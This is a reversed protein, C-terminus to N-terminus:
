DRNILTSLMFRVNEIPGILHLRVDNRVTKWIILDEEIKYIYKVDLQDINRVKTNIPRRNVHSLWRVRNDRMKDDEIPPVGLRDMYKWKNTLTNGCIRKLM